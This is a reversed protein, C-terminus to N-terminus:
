RAHFAHLFSSPSGLLGPVTLHVLNYLEQLDNQVPTATLMLCFTKRIKSAFRYNETRENKLRHAEDVILM